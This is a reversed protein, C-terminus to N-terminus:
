PAPRAGKPRNYARKLARSDIKVMGLMAERVRGARAPDKDTLLELLLSPIIQWHIGYRDQLWGCRLTRGGRSLRRWLADVEAQTECEAVISFAATHTFHPGGDFAMFEQGKLRFRVSAAKRGNRIVRVIKSGKILSVYLKAAEEVGGNFWLFSTITKM